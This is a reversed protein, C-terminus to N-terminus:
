ERVPVLVDVKDVRFTQAVQFTTIIGLDSEMFGDNVDCVDRIKILTGDPDSKLVINKFDEGTYAQGKTRLVKM